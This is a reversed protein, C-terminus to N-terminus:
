RRTFGATVRDVAFDIDRIVQFTGRCRKNLAPLSLTDGDPVEEQKKYNKVVTPGWRQEENEM